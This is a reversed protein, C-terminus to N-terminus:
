QCSANGNLWTCVFKSITEDDSPRNRDTNEGTVFGACHLIRCDNRVNLNTSFVHKGVDESYLGESQQNAIAAFIFITDATKFYTRGNRGTFPDTDSISLSSEKSLSAIKDLDNRWSVLHYPKYKLELIALITGLKLSRNWQCICIDPRVDSREAITPQVLAVIEPFFPLFGSILISQLAAESNIIGDNYARRVHNNWQLTFISAITSPSTPLGQM